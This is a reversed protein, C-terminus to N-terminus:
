PELVDSESIVLLVCRCNVLNGPGGRPDGPGTMRYETGRYPVIFDNDFPIPPRDLMALHHSRTRSSNIAGWKKRKGPIDLEKAVEYNAATSANHTETRAIARSRARSFIGLEKRLARAVVEVGAGGEQAAIIIARAKAITTQTINTIAAAGRELLFTRIIREFPSSQKQGLSMAEAGFRDIVQRYHQFLIQELRRPLQVNAVDISRNLDYEEAAQEAHIAFVGLLARELRREYLTRMRDIRLVERQESVRRRERKINLLPVRKNAMRM